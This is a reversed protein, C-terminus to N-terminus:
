AAFEGFPLHGHPAFDKRKPMGHACMEFSLHSAGGYVTRNRHEFPRRVAKGAPKVPFHAERLATAKVLGPEHGKTAAAYGADSLCWKATAAPRDHRFRDATDQLTEELPDLRLTSFTGVMAYDRRTMASHEIPGYTM